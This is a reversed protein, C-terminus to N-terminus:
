KRYFNLLKRILTSSFTADISFTTHVASLDIKHLKTVVFVWLALVKTVVMHQCHPRVQEIVSIINCEKMISCIWKYNMKRYMM